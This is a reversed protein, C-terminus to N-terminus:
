RSVSSGKDYPTPKLRIIKNLLYPQDLAKALLVRAFIASPPGSEDVDDDVDKDAAGDANSDARGHAKGM